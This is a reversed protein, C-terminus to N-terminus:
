RPRNERDCRAAAQALPLSGPVDPIGTLFIADLQHHHFFSRDISDDHGIPWHNVLPRPLM